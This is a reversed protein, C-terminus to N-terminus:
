IGVQRGKSVIQPQVEALNAWSQYVYRNACPPMQLYMLSVSFQGHGLWKSHDLFESATLYIGM